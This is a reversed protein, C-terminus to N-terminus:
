RWVIESKLPSAVTPLPNVSIKLWKGVTSGAVAGKQIESQKVGPSKVQWPLLEQLSLTSTNHLSNWIFAISELVIFYFLPHSLAIFWSQAVLDQDIQLTKKSVASINKDLRLTYSGVSHLICLGTCQKTTSGGYWKMFMANCVEHFDSIVGSINHTHYILYLHM